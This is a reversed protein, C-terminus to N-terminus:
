SPDDEQGPIEGRLIRIIAGLLQERDEFHTPCLQGIATLKDGRQDALRRYYDREGEIQAYRRAANDLEADTM